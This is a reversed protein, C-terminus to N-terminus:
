RPYVTVPSDTFRADRRVSSAPAPLHQDRIGHAARQRISQLTGPGTLERDLAEGLRDPGHAQEADSRRPLPEPRTYDELAAANCVGVAEVQETVLKEIVMELDADELPMVVSGDVLIRENVEFRLHRPALPKPKEIYLDYMDYVTSAASRSQMAFARLGSVGRDEYITECGAASPVHRQQDLSQEDTSVRM